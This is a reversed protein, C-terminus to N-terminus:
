IESKERPGVRMVAGDWNLRAGLRGGLTPSELIGIANAPMAIGVNQPEGGYEVTSIGLVVGAVVLDNDKAFLVPGGSMGVPFPTSVEYVPPERPLREFARTTIVYGKYARFVVRLLDGGASQTVAHPFGFSVLDTLVQLRDVFWASLITANPVPDTYLLAIDVDEWTEYGKVPAGAIPLGVDRQFALTPRGHSAANKVVHAATM